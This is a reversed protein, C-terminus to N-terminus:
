KRAVVGINWGLICFPWKDFFGLIEFFCFIESEWKKGFHDSLMRYPLYYSGFWSDIEFGSSRLRKELVGKNYFRVHTPDWGYWNKNGRVFHYGGQILYNLSFSNQTNLVIHGGKKLHENMNSLFKRDDNIHEIVDKVFIIDYKKELKVATADALVFKAEPHLKENGKLVQESMDVCTINAGKKIFYDTWVGGGPGIELIDLSWQEKGFKESLIHEITKNKIKAYLENEGEFYINLASEPDKAQYFSQKM